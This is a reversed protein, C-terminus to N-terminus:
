ALPDPRANLTRSARRVARPSVGENRRFARRMREPDGFGSLGAVEDISAHQSELLSRAAELRMREVMKAPSMGTERQFQRTFNRTSMAMRGALDDVNMREQLNNRMWQQLEDFQRSVAGTAQLRSPELHGDTGRTHVFVEQAVARAVDTGLDDEILRIALEIGASIGSSTWCPGDQLFIADREVIVRPFRRAFDEIWGWHTTARRGDLLGAEALAYSGVCVAAIRRAGGAEEALWEALVSMTSPDGLGYGGSAFITDFPGKDLTQAFISIGASSRILGGAPACTEILYSGPAVLNAFDFAAIPGAVDMLQFRPFIAFALRRTMASFSPLIDYRYRDQRPM